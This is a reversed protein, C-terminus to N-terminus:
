NRRPYREPHSPDRPPSQLPSGIAKSTDIAYHADHAILIVGPGDHVHRYDVVDILLEGSPNQIWDHFVPIFEEQDVRSADQLFLKLDVKVSEM